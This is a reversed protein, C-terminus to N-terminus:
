NDSMRRMALEAVVAILTPAVNRLYVFAAADDEAGGCLDSGRVRDTTVYVDEDTESHAGTGILWDSGDYDGVVLRLPYNSDHHIRALRRGIEALETNTPVVRQRYGPFLLQPTMALQETTEEELRALFLDLDQRLTVGV